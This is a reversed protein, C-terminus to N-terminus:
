FSARLQNRINKMELELQQIRSDRHELQERLSRIEEQQSYFVQLLEKEAAPPTFSASECWRVGRTPTSRTSVWQTEDEQWGSLDTLDHDSNQNVEQLFLKNPGSLYASSASRELGSDVPAPYPNQVKTSPRLSM